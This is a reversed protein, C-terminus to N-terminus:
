VYWLMDRLRDEEKKRLAEEAEKKTREEEEKKRREEEKRRREAEEAERIRREEEERKRRIEDEKEKKKREIEELEAKLKAAAELHAKWEAMKKETAIREAEEDVENGPEDTADQEGDEDEAKKRRGEGPKGRDSGGSDDSSDEGDSDFDSGRQFGGDTGGEEDDDDGHIGHHPVPWIALQELHMAVHNRFRKVSVVVDDGDGDGEDGYRKGRGHKERLRVSWEDCFPCDGANLTTIPQRGTAVFRDLQEKEFEGHFDHIHERLASPSMLKNGRPKGSSSSGATRTGVCLLCIYSCRHEDLEHAFWTPIDEFLLTDCTRGNGLTCLYTKLDKFAHHHWAKESQFQQLTFCIPCEFPRDDPSLDTLRPLKLTAMEESTTSVSNNSVSGADDFDGQEELERQQERLAQALDKKLAFTTAKSSQVASTAVRSEGDDYLTSRDDDYEDKSGDAAAAAAQALRYAHDRCYAIFRRRKTIATGMRKSLKGRGLKPYKAQVYDIDWKDSIGGGDKGSSAKMARDWRDRTNSAPQRILIGVKFLSSLCESIVQLLSGAEDLPEDDLAAIEALVDPDLDDDLMRNPHSGDLIATLDTLAQFMDKLDNCIFERVDTSGALRSDLSLRSEPKQLAGLNGVWLMFRELTDRVDFDTVSTSVNIIGHEYAAVLAALQRQIKHCRSSITEGMPTDFSDDWEGPLRSTM